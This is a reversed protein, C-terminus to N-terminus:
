RKSLSRLITVELKARRACYWSSWQISLSTRVVKKRPSWVSTTVAGFSRQSTESVGCSSLVTIRAGSDSDM